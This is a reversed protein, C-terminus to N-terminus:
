ASAMKLQSLKRPFVQVSGKRTKSDSVVTQAIMAADAESCLTFDPALGIREGDERLVERCFAHFTSVRIKKAPNESLLSTMRNKMEEAAKNTFTLALVKEPSAKGSQIQHAIRHTLTMTKGTGPGAIILLHGGEHLVAERQRENLPALISDHSGTPEFPGSKPKEIRSKKPSFPAEKQRDQKQPLTFLAEQGCLTKKEAKEFLRIVGIRRM